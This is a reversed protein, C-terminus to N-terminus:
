LYREVEPNTVLLNQAGAIVERNHVEEHRGLRPPTKFTVESMVSQQDVDVEVDEPPPALEEDGSLDSVDDVTDEGILEEDGSFEDDGDEVEVMVTDESFEITDDVQSLLNNSNKIKGNRTQNKISCNGLKGSLNDMNAKSRTLMRDPIGTVLKLSRTANNNVGKNTMAQQKGSLVSNSVLKRRPKDAKSSLPQTEVVTMPQESQVSMKSQKKAVKPRKNGNNLLKSSRKM